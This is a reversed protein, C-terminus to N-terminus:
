IKHLQNYFFLLQWLLRNGVKKEICNITLDCVKAHM